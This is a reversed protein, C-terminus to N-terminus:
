IFNKLHTRKSMMKPFYEILPMEIMLNQIAEQRMRKKNQWEKNKISKRKETARREQLLQEEENMQDVERMLKKCEEKEEDNLESSNKIIIKSESM